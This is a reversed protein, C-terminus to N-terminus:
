VVSNIEWDAPSDPATSEVERAPSPPCCDGMRIAGWWISARAWKCGLEVGRQELLQLAQAADAKFACAAPLRSSLHGCHPSGAERCQSRPESHGHSKGGARSRIRNPGTTQPAPPPQPWTTTSAVHWQCPPQRSPPHQLGPLAAQLQM